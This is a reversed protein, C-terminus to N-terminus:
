LICSITLTVPLQETALLIQMNTLLTQLVVKAAKQISSTQPTTGTPLGFYYGFAACRVYSLSM